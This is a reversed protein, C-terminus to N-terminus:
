IRYQNGLNDPDDHMYDIRALRGSIPDPKLKFRLYCPSQLILWILSAFGGILFIALGLGMLWNTFQNATQGSILIAMLTLVLGFLEIYEAIKINRKDHPQAIRCREMNFFRLRDGQTLSQLLDQGIQSPLILALIQDHNGLILGPKVKPDGALYFFRGIKVSGVKLENWDLHRYAPAEFFDHYLQKAQKETGTLAEDSQWYGYTLNAHGIYCIRILQDIFQPHVNFTRSLHEIQYKNLVLHAHKVERIVYNQYNEAIHGCLKTLDQIRHQILIIEKTNAPRADLMIIASM